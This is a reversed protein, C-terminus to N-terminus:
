FLTVTSVNRFGPYKARGNFNQPLTGINRGYMTLVPLAGAFARALEMVGHLKEFFIPFHSKLWAQAEHEKPMLGQDFSMHRASCHSSPLEEVLSFQTLM